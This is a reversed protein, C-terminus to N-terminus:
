WLTRYVPAPASPRTRSSSWCGSDSASYVACRERNLPLTGSIVALARAMTTVNVTTELRSVVSEGAFAALLSVSDHRPENSLTKFYRWSLFPAKLYKSTRLVLQRAPRFSMSAPFYARRFSGPIVTTATGLPLM